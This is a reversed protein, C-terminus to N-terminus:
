LEVDKGELYKKLKKRTRLLMSRVKTESFGFRRAISAATEGFWYRRIFVARKQEDLGAVFGGILESLRGDDDPSDDTRDPICEALEASLEVVRASRREATRKDIIDLATRRCIAACFAYLSKPRHPPIANWVKFYTDNLAEETDRPDDLLRDALRKLRQGYLEKTGEIAREDRGLYLEILEKDDM